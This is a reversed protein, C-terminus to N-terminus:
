AQDTAASVAQKVASARASPGLLAREIESLQERAGLDVSGLEAELVCEGLRMEDSSLVQPKLTLNPLLAISEQWLDVDAAPVRLRVATSAALQGLAVRVAGMLFLPDMQAERRLIRSAIALSLRVVEQEVSHLYHDRAETFSEMLRELQTSCQQHSSQVVAAMAEHELRRGEELGSERGACYSRMKADALEREFDPPLVDSPEAATGNRSPGISDHVSRNGTWAQWDPVAPEAVKPYSFLEVSRVSAYLHCEVGTANLNQLSRESM